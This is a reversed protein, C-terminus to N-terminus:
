SVFWLTARFQDVKPEWWTPVGPLISNRDGCAGPNMATRRSLPKEIQELIEDDEAIDAAHTAYVEHKRSVKIASIKFAGHGSGPQDEAEGRVGQRRLYHNALRAPKQRNTTAIPNSARSIPLIRGGLGSLDQLPGLSEFGRGRGQCAHFQWTAANSQLARSNV